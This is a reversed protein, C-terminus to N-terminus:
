KFGLFYEGVKEIVEDSISPMRKPPLNPITCIDSGKLDEVSLTGSNADYGFGIIRGNVKIEFGYNGICKRDIPSINLKDVLGSCIIDNQLQEVGSLINRDISNHNKNQNM